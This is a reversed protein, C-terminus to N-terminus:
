GPPLTPCSRSEAFPCRKSKLPELKAMMRVRTHTCRLGFRCPFRLHAKGADRGSVWYGVLLAGLPEARVRGERTVASSSTRARSRNSRSGRRRAGAPKTAATRASASSAKSAAQWRLKTCHSETKRRTCWSCSRRLCCANPSIAGDTSYPWKRLNVGAFHLLDFCYLVVPVSPGGGRTRAENQAPCSEAIRQFLTQRVCRLGRDGWGTDDGGGGARRARRDPAPVLFRARARAACGSMRATSSRSCATATSSPSGCGTPTTSRSTASRPTCRSSSAPM